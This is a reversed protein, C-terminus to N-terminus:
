VIYEEGVRYIRVANNHLMDAAAQLMQQHSYGLQSAQQSLAEGLINRTIVGSGVAMEVTTSDHSCMLKHLPVYNLWKQFSEQLFGPNLGPQWCTDIAMNPTTQALYGCENQFPWNHLMVITVKPYRAALNKLPLPNSQPMNHTGTHCQLPWGRESALKCCENVIWNQFTRVETPSLEGRFKVEADSVAEFDLDRTYAQLQKIGTNRFKTSQQFISQLFAQWSAADAPDVGTQAALWDRSKDNTKWMECFPDIRLITNTIAMEATASEVTHQKYYFDPHVPRILHSFSAKKMAQAYWGFIQLYNRGIQEDLKEIQEPKAHEIDVGYLRQIGLRTCQFAGQLRHYRLVPQLVEMQRAPAKSAVELVNDFGFTKAVLNPESGSSWVFGGFYADLILHMLHVPQNPLMGRVIDAPFGGETQDFVTISGWHEHACFNPIRSIDLKNM